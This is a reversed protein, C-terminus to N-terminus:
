CNYAGLCTYIYISFFGMFWSLNDICGKHLAFLCTLNLFFFCASPYFGEMSFGTWDTGTGEHKPPPSRVIAFTVRDHVSVGGCERLLPHSLPPVM